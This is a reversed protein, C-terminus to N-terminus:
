ILNDAYSPGIASIINAKSIHNFAYLVPRGKHFFPKSIFICNLKQSKPLHQIVWLKISFSIILNKFLRSEIPKSQGGLLPNFLSSCDPEYSLGSSIATCVCVFIYSKFKTRPDIRSELEIEYLFVLVEIIKQCVFAKFFPIHSANEGLGVVYKLCICYLAMHEAPERKSSQTVIPDVCGLCISQIQNNKATSCLLPFFLIGFQFPLPKVHSICCCNALQRNQRIHFGQVGLEYLLTHRLKLLALWYQMLSCFLLQSPKICCVYGILKTLKFM